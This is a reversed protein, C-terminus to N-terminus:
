VASAVATAAAQTNDFNGTISAVAAANANAVDNPNSPISAPPQVLAPAAAPPFPASKPPLGGATPPILPRQLPQSPPQPTTVPAQLLPLQIPPQVAKSPPTAVNGDRSTPPTAGGNTAAGNGATPPTTIPPFALNALGDTARSPAAAPAQLLLRANVSRDHHDMMGDGAVVRDIFGLLERQSGLKSQELFAHVQETDDTITDRALLPSTCVMAIALVIIWLRMAAM